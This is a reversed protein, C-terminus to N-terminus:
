EIFYLNYIHNMILILELIKTNWHSYYPCGTSPNANQIQTGKNLHVGQPHCDPASIHLLQCKDHNTNWRSISHMQWNIYQINSRSHWINPPWIKPLLMANWHCWNCFVPTASPHRKSFNDSFLTHLLSSRHLACCQVRSKYETSPIVVVMYNDRPLQYAIIMITFFRVTHGARM